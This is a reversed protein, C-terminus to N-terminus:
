RARLGACRLPAAFRRPGRWPRHRVKHASKALLPDRQGRVNIMGL